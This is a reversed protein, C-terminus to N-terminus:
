WRRQYATEASFGRRHRRAIRANQAARWIDEGTSANSQRRKMEGRRRWSNFIGNRKSAATIVVHRVSLVAAAAAM